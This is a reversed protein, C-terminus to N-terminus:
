GRSPSADQSNASRLQTADSESTLLADYVALTERAARSWTFTAAQVLGEHKMQERLEHSTWVRQIAESIDSVDYPDFYEAAGGGVEPLSAAQSLIVPTRCAMAEVVPLGFGEYVSPLVAATAAGYLAPLDASSVYGPFYVADRVPTRELRQFFGEYLWGKAGVIVLPITMGNRRLHDLADILRSLNKRPEITGVHVLFREPLGYKQRVREVAERTQPRFDAQAAEYVVTIKAPHIGYDAM